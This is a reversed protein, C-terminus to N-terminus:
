SAKLLEPLFTRRRNLSVRKVQRDFVTKPGIVVCATRARSIATYWYNRDAIQSAADDIVCLVCPWESGQSKHVTIAWALDFDATKGGDESGEHTDGVPRKGVKVEVLPVDPGGFRVVSAKESVAVVRGIDGNTVYREVEPPEGPARYFPQPLYADADGVM